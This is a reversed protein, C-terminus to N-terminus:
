GGKMIKGFSYVMIGIFLTIELALIISNPEVVLFSDYMIIGIFPVLWATCVAILLLFPLRKKM